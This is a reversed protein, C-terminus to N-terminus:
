SPIRRRVAHVKVVKKHQPMLFGYYAGHFSLLVTLGVWGLCYFFASTFPITSSSGEFWEIFDLIFLTISIWTPFIIASLSATEFWDVASFFKLVRATVLGNIWGMVALYFFSFGFM